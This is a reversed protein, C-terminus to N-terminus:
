STVPLAQDVYDNLWNSANESDSFVHFQIQLDHYIRQCQMQKIDANTSNLIVVAIAIMGKEQRYQTTERLQHEADPTIVGDGRFTILSGWPTGSMQDTLQQIDQHYKEATAEDFAGQVDVLMINKQQEIVYCGDVSHKM